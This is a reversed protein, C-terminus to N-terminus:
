IANIEKTAALDGYYLIAHNLHAGQVSNNNDNSKHYYKSHVKKVDVPLSLWSLDRVSGGCGAELLAEWLM